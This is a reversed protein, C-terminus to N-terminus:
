FVPWSVAEGPPKHCQSQSTRMAAAAL